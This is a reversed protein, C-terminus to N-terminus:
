SCTCGAHYTGPFCYGVYVRFEEEFRNGQCKNDNCRLQTPGPCYDRCPCKFRKVQFQISSCMNTVTTSALIPRFDTGTGVCEDNSCDAYGPCYPNPADLKNPSAGPTAFVHIILLLATTPVALITKKPDGSTSINQIQPVVTMVEPSASM